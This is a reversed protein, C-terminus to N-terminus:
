IESTNGVIGTKDVLITNENFPASQIEIITGVIGTKDVLITENEYWERQDSQITFLQALGFITM